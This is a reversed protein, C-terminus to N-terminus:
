IFIITIFFNINLYFRLSVILANLQSELHSAITTSSLQELIIPIFQPPLHSGSGTLVALYEYIGRTRNGERENLGHLLKWMIWSVKEDYSYASSSSFSSSSSSSLPLSSINQTNVVTIFNTLCPITTLIKDQNTELYPFYHLNPITKVLTKAARHRVRHDQENLYKIIQNLVARQFNTGTIM